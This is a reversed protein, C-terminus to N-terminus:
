KNRLDELLLDITPVLGEEKKEENYKELLPILYTETFGNMNTKM